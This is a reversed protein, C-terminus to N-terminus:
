IFDFDVKVVVILGLINNLNEGWIFEVVLVGEVVKQICGIVWFEKLLNMIEFVDNLVIEVGDVCVGGKYYIIIVVLGLVLGKFLEGKCELYVKLGLFDCIEYKFFLNLMIFIVQYDVFLNNFCELVDEVFKKLEEKLLNLIEMLEDFM